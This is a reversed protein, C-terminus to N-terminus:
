RKPTQEVVQPEFRGDKEVIRFKTEYIQDEALGRYDRELEFLKTELETPMFAVFHRPRLRIGLASMVEQVSRPDKDTWYIRNIQALDEDLLQAPRRSLDRVLKYEPPPGNPLPSEKVPVALIAGLGRLQRVYDEGTRTNFLLSWRLMRKERRNLLPAKGPGPGPGDGPGDGVGKGGRSGPGGRGRGPDLGDARQRRVAENLRAIASADTKAIVRDFKLDPKAPEAPRLDPRPPAATKHDPEPNAAVEPAHGIGREDGQGTPQGGGGPLVWVPDVPLARSPRAFYAALYVGWLVLFGVVLAHVAFSGAGSLPLEGHPSYRKWFREDPLGPRAGGSKPSVSPATVM